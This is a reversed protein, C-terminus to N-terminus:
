LKNNLSYDLVKIKDVEEVAKELRQNETGNIIAWPTQQNILINKYITFLTKRTELDPYERLDDQTWPLDVDCLLYLDYQRTAIQKLIWDHCKNFVFECWVQMVYMNTDLFLLRNNHLKEVFYDELNIQGKAIILLDEYSYAKGNKTLYDRAYEPCWDTKYYDALQNCLTSKGTSEPGIVVIKQIM